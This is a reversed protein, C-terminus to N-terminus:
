VYPKYIPNILLIKTLILSSLPPLPPQFRFLARSLPGLPNQRKKGGRGGGEEPPSLAEVAAAVAFESHTYRFLIQVPKKSISYDSIFVVSNM